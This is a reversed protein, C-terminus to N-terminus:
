PAQSWSFRSSVEEQKPGPHSCFWRPAKCRDLLESQEAGQLGLFRNAQLIARQGQAYSSITLRKLVRTSEARRESLIAKDFSWM